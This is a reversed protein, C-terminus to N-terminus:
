KRATVFACLHTAHQSAGAAQSVHSHNPGSKPCFTGRQVTTPLVPPTGPGLALMSASQLTRVWKMFACSSSFLCKWPQVWMTSKCWCTEIQVGRQVSIFWQFHRLSTFSCVEMWNLLDQIKIRLYKILFLVLFARSGSLSGTNAPIVSLSFSHSHVIARITAEPNRFIIVGTHEM